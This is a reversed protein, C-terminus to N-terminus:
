HRYHYTGVLWLMLIVVGLAFAVGLAVAALRCDDHV